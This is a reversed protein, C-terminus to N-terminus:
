RWNRRDYYYDDDDDWGYYAPYSTSSKGKTGYTYAPKNAVASGAAKPANGATYVVPQTYTKTKVVEKAKDIFDLLGTGDDVTVIKIDTDDYVINDELDYIKATCAGNKNTILFIFFSDEGMSELIEKRHTEDTGSPTTGMNVHSHGHFRLHSFTEDDFDMLWQPFKEDDSDVTSGTVTQPYVFIDTVIYGDEQKYAVGRWGVEKDFSDVLMRMKIWAMETFRLTTKKDIKGITKTFSVTGDKYRGAALNEAFEKVLDQLVEATVKINRAM